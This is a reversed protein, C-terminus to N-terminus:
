KPSVTVWNETPTTSRHGGGFSLWLILNSRPLGLNKWLWKLYMKPLNLVPRLLMLWVLAFLVSKM